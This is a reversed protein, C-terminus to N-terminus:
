AEGGTQAPTEAGRAAAEALSEFFPRLTDRDKESLHPFLMRVAERAKGPENRALANFPLAWTARLMM